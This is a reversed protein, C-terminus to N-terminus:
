QGDWFFVFCIFGWFILTVVPTGWGGLLLPHPFWRSKIWGFDEVPLDMFSLSFSSNHLNENKWICLGSSLKVRERNAGGGEKEQKPEYNQKAERGWQTIADMHEGPICPTLVRSVWAVTLIQCKHSFGGYARARIWVASGSHNDGYLMSLCRKANSICAPIKM